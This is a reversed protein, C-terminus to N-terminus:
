VIEETPMLSVQMACSKPFSESVCINNLSFRYFEPAPCQGFRSGHFIRGANAGILYSNSDSTMHELSKAHFSSTSESDASPKLSLAKMLKVRGMMSLSVEREVDVRERAPLEIAVWVLLNGAEDLSAIQFSRSSQDNDDNGRSQGKSAARTSNIKSISVVPYGHLDQVQNDTQFTPYRFVYGDKLEHANSQERTDWLQVSGGSTGAFVISAREPGFCCCQVEAASKLIRKPEKPADLAWVILYSDHLSEQQSSKTPAYAAVIYNPQADSFQIDIADLDQAFPPRKLITSSTAFGSQSQKTVKKSGLSVMSEQIINECVLSARALFKSLNVSDVQLSLSQYDGAFELSKLNRITLDHPVQCSVDINPIPDTQIELTIIDNDAPAQVSKQVSNSKGFNEIYMDYENMPDQQFIEGSVYDFSVLNMLDQVRQKRRRLAEVEAASLRAKGKAYRREAKKPADKSKTSDEIKSIGDSSKSRTTSSASEPPGRSSSKNKIASNELAVANIADLFAKDSMGPIPVKNGGKGVAGDDDDEFDDHYEEFDDQYENETMLEEAPPSKDRRSRSKGSKEEKKRRRRSEEPDDENEQGADAGEKKKKKKRVAEGDSTAPAELETAAALAAEKEKKRRERRERRERKEREEETEAVPAPQQTATVDVNAAAAAAEKEKKRRERRERKEREEETEAALAPQQTATVDVNAAAAAAEKEKKRRERRERKEREEETENAPAANTSPASQQPANGGTNAAAAAAEKEKKRRERRERKEREEETENATPAPQQSATADVNAAAAAAEKEKKRRERRERKEREEETENAPAASTSPASQQPANGDANGAAAAAEKEKKRRERRERKEREEETENAPAAAVASAAEQAEKEKKRRRRAEEKAAADAADSPNSPGEEEAAPKSSKKKSKKEANAADAM